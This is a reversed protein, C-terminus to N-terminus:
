RRRKPRQKPKAPKKGTFKRKGKGRKVGRGKPTEGTLTFDIQRKQVSVNQVTVELTDGLTFTRGTRDGRLSHTVEDHVYYDDVILSLRVLGDVPIEELEVFFGFSTVGVIVGTYEEGLRSEMFRCQHLKVIEREAMEANRETQSCHSAHHVLRAEEKPDAKRRHIVSKLLRHVLLDPYRRIPSTFHTYWDFALGFHGLNETSYRAQMMSRLLAHTVVKEKDSGKFKELVKTLYLPSLRGGKPKKIGMSSIFELFNELKENDPAEHVRYISCDSKDALFMAVSRNAMLMFEEVIKHAENRSSRVINEPRGTMDLVIEPEPLDFDIAGASLREKRLLMALEYMVRLMPETEAPINKEGTELFDAVEDYTLRAKSRIVSEVIEYKKPKGKKDFRMICSLTLRDKNPNLSCLENSLKFPLMPIVKGPFYVSNGRHASSLDLPGNEKVYHSADAIHVGLIFDGNKDHSVEVADDFDKATAGDITVIMRDRLDLRGHLDKEDPLRCAKAEKLASNPFRDTIAYKAIIMAIEVEASDPDGLIKTIVGVARSKKDPYQEIRVVVAEGNGAGLSDAEAVFIEQGIREELPTVYGGGRHMSEYIGTLETSAREIVQVISGERKGDPSTREVRAVVKDGHMATRFNKPSLFLDTEGPDNPLLFGYGDPHGHVTGTILNMKGALGYRGGRIKVIFGEKVLLKIMKRAERKGAQDTGLRLLLERM